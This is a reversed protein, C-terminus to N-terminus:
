TWAANLQGTDLLQIHIEVWVTLWEQSCVMASKSEALLEQVLSLNGESEIRTVNCRTYPKAPKVSQM